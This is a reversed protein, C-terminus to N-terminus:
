RHIGVCSGPATPPWSLVLPVSSHHTQQKTSVEETYQVYGSQTKNTLIQEETGEGSQTLLASKWFDRQTGESKQKVAKQRSRATNTM